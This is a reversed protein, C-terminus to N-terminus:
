KKGIDKESEQYWKTRHRRTLLYDDDLLSSTTRDIQVDKFVQALSSNCSFLKMLLFDLDTSIGPSVFPSSFYKTIIAFCRPSLRSSPVYYLPKMGSEFSFRAIQSAGLENPHGSICFWLALLISLIIFLLVIMDILRIWYLLRLSQFVCTVQDPLPWFEDNTNNNKPCYFVADFDTFFVISIVLSSVAMVLQLVSKGIYLYFISNRGYTTFSQELQHVLNFNKKSYKGTDEERFRDLNTVVAMFSQFQGSTNAAWLYHPISIALGHIFIFGPVYQSLPLSSSCYSTIFDTTTEGNKTICSVESGRIFEILADVAALALIVSVLYLVISDWFFDRSKVQSEEIEPNEESGELLQRPDTNGGDAM